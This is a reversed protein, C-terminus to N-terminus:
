CKSAPGQAPQLVLNEVVLSAKPRLVALFAGVLAQLIAVVVVRTCDNTPTV